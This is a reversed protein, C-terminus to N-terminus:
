DKSRKRGGSLQKAINALEIATLAAEWGKNGAKAGARELAQELSETTLIGFATPMGSQLAVAGIGRAVESAIYDFHPTDGRIICGLCILADYSGSAALQSAVQPIEFSGPCHVITINNASAGHRVLCDMAGDLLHRTVLSNFRSVVIAYSHGEASLQGEITQSM